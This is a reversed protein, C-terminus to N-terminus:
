ITIYMISRSRRSNFIRCLILIIMSLRISIKSYIEFIILLMLGSRGVPWIKLRNQLANVSIRIVVVRAFHITVPVTFWNYECVHDCTSPRVISGCTSLTQDSQFSARKRASTPHWRPLSSEATLIPRVWELANARTVIHTLRARGSSGLFM